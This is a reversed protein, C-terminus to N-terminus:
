KNGSSRPKFSAFGIDNPGVEGSFQETFQPQQNLSWEVRQVIAGILLKNMKAAFGTVHAACGFTTKDMPGHNKVFGFNLVEEKLKPNTIFRRANFQNANAFIKEDRNILSTPGLM